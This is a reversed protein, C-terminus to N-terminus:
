ATEAFSTIRTATQWEIDSQTPKNRCGLGFGAVLGVVLIFRALLRVTIEILKDLKGRISFAQYHSASVNSSVIDPGTPPNLVAVNTVGLWVAGTSNDAAAEHHFWEGNPGHRTVPQLNVTVTANGAARGSAFAEPLVTRETLQNM